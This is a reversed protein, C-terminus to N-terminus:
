WGDAGSGGTACDALTKEPPGEVEFRFVADPYPTCTARLRSLRLRAGCFWHRSPRPFRPTPACSLPGPTGRPRHTGRPILYIRHKSGQMVRGGGELKGGMVAFGSWVGGMRGAGGDARRGFRFEGAMGRGPRMTRHRGRGSLGQRPRRPKLVTRQSTQILFRPGASRAKTSQVGTRQSERQPTM